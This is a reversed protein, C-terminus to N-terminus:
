SLLGSEAIHKESKKNLRVTAVMYYFSVLMLNVLMFLNISQFIAIYVVLGSNFLHGYTALFDFTPWWELWRYAVGERRFHM